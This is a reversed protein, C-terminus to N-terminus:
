SEDENIWMTILHALREADHEIMHEVFAVADRVEGPSLPRDAADDAPRPAPGLEIPPRVLARHDPLVAPRGTVVRRTSVSVPLPEPTASARRRRWAPVSVGLSMGATTVCLTVVALVLVVTSTDVAIM